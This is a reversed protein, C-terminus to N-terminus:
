LRTVRGLLGVISRLSIGMGPVNMCFLNGDRGLIIRKRNGSECENVDPVFFGLGMPTEISTDVEDKDCESQFSVPSDYCSEYEGEPGWKMTYTDRCHPFGSGNPVCGQSFILYGVKEEAPIDRTTIDPLTASISLDPNPSPLAAAITPAALAALLAALISPHM